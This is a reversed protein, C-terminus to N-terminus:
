LISIIDLFHFATPYAPHVLMITCCSSCGPQESQYPGAYENGQTATQQQARARAPTTLM